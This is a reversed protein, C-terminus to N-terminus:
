HCYCDPSMERDKWGNNPPPLSKIGMCLKNKHSLYNHQKEGTQQQVVAAAQSELLPSQIVNRGLLPDTGSKGRNHKSFILVSGGVDFLDM